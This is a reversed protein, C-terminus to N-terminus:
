DEKSLNKKDLEIKVTLRSQQPTEQSRKIMPRQSSNTPISSSDGAEQDDEETDKCARKANLGLLEDDRRDKAQLRTELLANKKAIKRRKL